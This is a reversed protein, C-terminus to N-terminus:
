ALHRHWVNDRFWAYAGFVFGANVDARHVADM